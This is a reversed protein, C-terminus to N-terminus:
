PQGADLIRVSAATHLTNLFLLLGCLCAALGVVCLMAPLLTRRLIRPGFSVKTSGVRFEVLYKYQGYDSSLSPAFKHVLPEWAPVTFFTLLIVLLCPIAGLGFVVAFLPKM